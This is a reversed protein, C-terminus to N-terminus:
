ATAEATVRAWPLPEAQVARRLVYFFLDHELWRRNTRYVFEQLYRPLHKRSVGHFTGRLWGKLNSFLIHSWPLIRAARTPDGQVVARHRAGHQRLDGYGSWGDTRVTAEAQDIAGRVFPGLEAQSAEPVVAMRLSGAREGRNEVVAAVLSKGALRRGRVGREHRAGVYTEDAEVLGTLRFEPRERLASRVKHLWMWATKYSGLGLDKQLQLASIGAKHRGVFFIALFWLRLPKRTRHFVTGATISAQYRCSRCQELRRTRIAVSERGGCRPCVFGEPWRLKRLLECCAREDPFREMLEVITGPGKADKM